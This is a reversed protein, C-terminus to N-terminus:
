VEGVELVREVDGMPILTFHESCLPEPCVVSVRGMLQDADPKGLHGEPCRLWWGSTSDLWVSLKAFPPPRTPIVTEFTTTM